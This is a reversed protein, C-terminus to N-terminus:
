CVLSCYNEPLEDATRHKFHKSKGKNVMLKLFVSYHHLCCASWFPSHRVCVCLEVVAFLVARCIAPADWELM